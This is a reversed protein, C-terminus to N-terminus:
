FIDFYLEIEHPSLRSPSVWFGNPIGSGRRIHTQPKVKRGRKFDLYTHPYGFKKPKPFAFDAGVRGTAM